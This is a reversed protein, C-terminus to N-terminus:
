TGEVGNTIGGDGDDDDEDDDGGGGDDEFDKMEILNQSQDSKSVQVTRMYQYLNKPSSKEPGLFRNAAEAVFQIIDSRSKKERAGYIVDVIFALLSERQIVLGSQAETVDSSLQSQVLLRGSNARAVAPGSGGEVKKLAEAYTIKQQEKVEQVKKAKMFLSCERSSAMHPGGCNCCQHVSVGCESLDHEGGCKACRRNGRCAAAMHGFRQCKFCRLPPRVYNRVQFSLCGIFVRLPLTKGKFTLMVPANANGGERAKFRRVEVVEGGIVNDKIERESMDACVGYIVGKVVEGHQEAVTVEIKKGCIKNVKKAKALQEGGTCWVLLAGNPLVQAKVSESVNKLSEAIKLPNMGRFGEGTQDKLKYVVKYELVSKAMKSGRSEEKELSTDCRDRKREIRLKDREGESKLSM